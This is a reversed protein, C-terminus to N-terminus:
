EPAEERIEVNMTMEGANDFVLTLPIEQGAEFPQSVDLCMVHLGTPVLAVTQGPSIPITQGEVPRMQMVGDEDVTTRHLEATGCAASRVSRLVDDQGTNNTITMYFAGNEAMNPLPRGWVGEVILGDDDTSGSGCAVLLLLLILLIFPSSRKM